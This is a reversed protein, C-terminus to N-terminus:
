PLFTRIDFVFAFTLHVFSNAINTTEMEPSRSRTLRGCTVITELDYSINVLQHDITSGAANLENEPLNGASEKDL